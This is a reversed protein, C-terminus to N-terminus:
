PTLPTYNAVVKFNMGYGMKRDQNAEGASTKIVDYLYLGDVSSERRVTKDAMLRGVKQCVDNHEDISGTDINTMVVVSMEVMYNGDAAAMGEFPNTATGAMVLVYPMPRDENRVSELVTYRSGALVAEIKNKFNLEVARRISM